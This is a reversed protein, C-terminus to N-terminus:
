QGVAVHMILLVTSAEPSDFLSSPGAQEFMDQFPSPEDEYVESYAQM